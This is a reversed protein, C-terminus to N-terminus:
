PSTLEKLRKAVTKEVLKQVYELRNRHERGYQEKSLAPFSKRLEEFLSGSYGGCDTYKDALRSKTVALYREMVDASVKERWSSKTMMRSATLRCAEDIASMTDQVALVSDAPAAYDEEIVHKQAYASRTMIGIQVYPIIRCHTDQERLLLCLKALMEPILERGNVVRFFASELEAIEYPPLHELTDCLAPALCLEGFREVEKFNQLSGVALKINRLIKALSPDTESLLRFAGQNVKSFVLRRLHALIEEEPASQLPLGSFYSELQVYRGKSEERFLDAICDFAIDGVTLGSTSCLINRSTKRALFSSALSHCLSILENLQERTSSRGLLASLNERLSASLKPYVGTASRSKNM